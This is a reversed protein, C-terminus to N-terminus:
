NLNPIHWTGRSNENLKKIFNNYKELNKLHKMKGEETYFAYSEPEKCLQKLKEFIQLSYSENMKDMSAIYVLNKQIVENSINNIFKEILENSVLNSIKELKIKEEKGEFDYELGLIEEYRYAFGNQIETCISNDPYNNVFNLFLKPYFKGSFYQNRNSDINLEYTIFKYLYSEPNRMKHSYTYSVLNEIENLSTMIRFLIQHSGIIDEIRQDYISISRHSNIKLLHDFTEPIKTEFAQREVGKIMERILYKGILSFKEDNNVLDFIKEYEKDKLNKYIEEPIELFPNRIAMLQGILDDDEYNTISKTNELFAILEQETKNKRKETEMQLSDGPWNFENLDTIKNKLWEPNKSIEDYFKPWEERIILLKCIIKEYKKSFTCDELIRNGDNSIREIGWKKELGYAKEFFVLETQLNNILQIIRRPNTAYKEAIIYITDSELNLKEKKNINNTFDFMDAPKLPKVYIVTDFIKRLFESPNDGYKIIQTSLAGDDVPIIIIINKKNNLFGKIDTLLQYAHKQTCRDINDIVIVIRKNENQDLYKKVEDNFKMEFQEPSFYLPTHITKELNFNSKIDGIKKWITGSVLIISLIIGSIIPLGSLYLIFSLLFVGIIFIGTILFYASSKLSNESIGTYMLEQIEEIDKKPNLKQFIHTLFTRRFNDNSYKWSDYTIFLTDTNEFDKKTTEIISSKGLGWEGFLGITTSKDEFSNSISDNLVKCYLRTGLFDDKNLDTPNDQIFKM